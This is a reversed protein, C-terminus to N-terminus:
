QEARRIVQGSIRDNANAIVVGGLERASSERTRVGYAITSELDAAVHV